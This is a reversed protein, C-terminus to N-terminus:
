YGRLRKSMYLVLDDGNEVMGYPTASVPGDWVGTGDFLYGRKVYMRQAAGYGSHLGVGLCIIDAIEAAIAEIRDMLVTGIGRRQYKVFVHFDKVEPIGQGLFPVADKAQPYLTVFGAIEGGVEALIVFREGSEQERYYREWIERPKDEGQAAFQALIHDIDAQTATRIITEDTTTIEDITSVPALEKRFFICRETEAFGLRLHFHYSDANDLLCDSLFERCANQRAWDECMAVLAAAVGHLRYDRRVYIAELYGATGYLEKGNVYENRLAGHCVGVPTEGEYALFFAQRGNAFHAENEMLLAEYSHNEFLESLLETLTAIDSEGAKRYRMQANVDDSWM